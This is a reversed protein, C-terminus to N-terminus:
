LRHLEGIDRVQVEGTAGFVQTPWCIATKIASVTNNVEWSVSASVRLHAQRRMMRCRSTMASNSRWVPCTMSTVCSSVSVSCFASISTSRTVFWVYSMYQVPSGNAVYQSRPKSRSRVCSTTSFGANSHCSM